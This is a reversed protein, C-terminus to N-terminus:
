YKMTEQIPNDPILDMDFGGEANPKRDFFSLGIVPEGYPYIVWALCNPDLRQWEGATVYIMAQLDDALQIGKVFASAFSFHWNRARLRHPVAYPRLDSESMEATSVGPQNDGAMSVSCTGGREKPPVYAAARRYSYGFGADRVMGEVSSSLDSFMFDAGEQTLPIAMEAVKGQLSEPYSFRGVEMGVPATIKNIDSYTAYVESNSVRLIAM